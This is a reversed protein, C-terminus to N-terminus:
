LINASRRPPQSRRIATEVVKFAFGFEDGPKELPFIQNEKEGRDGLFIRRVGVRSQDSPCALGKGPRALLIETGGVTQGWFEAQATFSV